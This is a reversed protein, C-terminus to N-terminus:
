TYFNQPVRKGVLIEGWRSCGGCEVDGLEGVHREINGVSRVRIQELISVLLIEEARGGGKEGRLELLKAAVFRFISSNNAIDIGATRDGRSDLRGQTGISAVLDDYVM